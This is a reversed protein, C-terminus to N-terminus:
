REVLQFDVKTILWDPVQYKKDIVWHGRNNKLWVNFSATPHMAMKYRNIIATSDSIIIFRDFESTLGQRQSLGNIIKLIFDDLNRDWKASLEVEIGLRTGSKAIWIIDPRKSGLKDGHKSFMRETEYDVIHGSNLGNITSTQAILYHRINSQDVRYPDIESYKFLEFSHREAEQLGLEALTFFSVPTGSKTKTTHLWNQNALKQLYGGSTKNLLLQGISASTYGWRYIWEFVKLRSELGLAKPSKGSRSLALRAAALQSNVNLKNNEMNKIDKINLRRSACARLAM